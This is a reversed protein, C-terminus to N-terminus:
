VNPYCVVVGQTVVPYGDAETIGCMERHGLSVINVVKDWYIDNTALDHL